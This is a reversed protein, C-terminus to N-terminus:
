LQRSFNESILDGTFYAIWGEPKTFFRIATFFPEEGMDFWHRYNEPVSILDGKECLVSYVKAGVHLFFHGSGEVFFRIEPENHIHENLFKQRLTEKNPNNPLMRLVDVALFGNAEKLLQIDHSYAELIEESSSTPALHECAEWQEFRVGIGDLFYAISKPDTSEELLVFTADDYVKLQSAHLSFVSLFLIAIKM